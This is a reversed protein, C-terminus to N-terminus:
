GEHIVWGTTQMVYTYSFAHRIAPILYTFMLNLVLCNAVGLPIGAKLFTYGNRVFSRRTGGKPLREPCLKIFNSPYTHTRWRYGSRVCSKSIERYSSCYRISRFTKLGHVVVKNSQKTLLPSERQPWLTCGSTQSFYNM